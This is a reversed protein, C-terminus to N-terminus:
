DEVEDSQADHDVQVAFDDVPDSPAISEVAAPPPEPGEVAPAACSRALSIISLVAAAVTGVTSVISVAMSAKSRKEAAISRAEAADLRERDITHEGYATIAQEGQPGLRFVKGDPTLYSQLFGRDSLFSTDKSSLGLRDREARYEGVPCSGRSQVFKLLEYQAKNLEIM